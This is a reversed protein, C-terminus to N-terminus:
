LQRYVEKFKSDNRCLTFICRKAKLPVSIEKIKIKKKDRIADFSLLRELSFWVSITRLACILLLILEAKEL